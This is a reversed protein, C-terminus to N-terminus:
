GILGFNGILNQIMRDMEDLMYDLYKLMSLTEVQDGDLMIECRLSEEIVVMVKSKNVNLFEEMKCM